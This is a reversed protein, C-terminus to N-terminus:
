FPLWKLAMRITLVVVVVSPGAAVKRAQEISIDKASAIGVSLLHWSWAVFLVGFLIVVFYLPSELGFELVNTLQAKASLGDPSDPVDVTFFLAIQVVSRVLLWVGIPVVSWATVRSLRSMPGRGGVARGLFHGTLTYLVWVGFVFMIPGAVYGILTFKMYPLPSEISNWTELAIYAKGASGLLGCLLVVVVELSLGRQDLRRRILSEQKSLSIGVM